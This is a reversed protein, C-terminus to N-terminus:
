VVTRDSFKEGYRFLLQNQGWTEDYGTVLVTTLVPGPSVTVAVVTWYAVVM